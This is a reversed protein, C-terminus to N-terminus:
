SNIIRQYNNIVDPVIHSWYLKSELISKAEEGYQKMQERHTLFYELARCIDQPYPECMEYFKKDSIYKMNCGSTLIMPLGCAMADIIAMSFGESYSAMIYGDSSYMANYKDEKYLPGLWRYNEEVGLEEALAQFKESNGKYDPGILVFVLDKRLEKSLLSIAKLIFDVNKDERLVSIMCIITKGCFDYNRFFNTNKLEKNPLDKPEFGNFAVFCRGNYGYKMLGTGEEPTLIHCETCRKLYDLEFLWKALLRKGTYAHPKSYTGHTTIVSKLGLKNVAEMIINKDYFWILHFHVIDISSKEEELQKIIDRNGFLKVRPFCRVKVYEDRVIDVPKQIGEVIAWIQSDLGALKEYKNLYYVVRSIGNQSDPNTKGHVIHIVKM